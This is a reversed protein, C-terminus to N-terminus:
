KEEATNNNDTEEIDTMNKEESEVTNNAELESETDENSDEHSKAKTTDISTDEKTEVENSLSNNDEKNQPPCNTVTPEQEAIYSDEWGIEDSYQTYSEGDIEESFKNWKNALSHKLEFAKSLDKKAYQFDIMLKQNRLDCKSLRSIEDKYKLIRNNVDFMQNEINRRQWGVLHKVKKQLTDEDYICAISMDDKSGIKSLQPLTDQINVVTKELGDKNLLKLVQVYFNM